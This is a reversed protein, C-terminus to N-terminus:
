EGGRANCEREERRALTMLRGIISNHPRDLRRGIEAYTLREDVLSLLRKDEEQTFRRVKHNGRPVVLSTPEPSPRHHCSPTDAGYRLCIWSLAGQSINTGQSSFHAQIERFTKGEERLECAEQRQDETLKRRAM